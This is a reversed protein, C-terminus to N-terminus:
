SLTLSIIQTNYALQRRLNYTKLTIELLYKQEGKTDVFVDM